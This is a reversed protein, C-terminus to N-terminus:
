VLSRLCDSMADADPTEPDFAGVFRGAACRYHLWGTDQGRPYLAPCQALFTGWASFSSGYSGILVRATGLSLLDGIASGTEVVTVSPERLLEAVQDHKGDTVIFAPVNSGAAERIRRLTHIFWSLPTQHSGVKLLDAMSNVPTFDGRRVHMGIPAIPGATGFKRWRPTVVALLERRLLDVQDNLQGFCDTLGTFTVIGKTATPPDELREPGPIVPLVLRKWYRQLGTVEGAPPSFQGWYWRWDRERRLIPGIKFTEWNPAIRRLGHRHSYVISRAWPFLRNALGASPLHATCYLESFTNMSMLVGPM